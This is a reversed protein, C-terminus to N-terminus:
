PPLHWRSTLRKCLRYALYSIFGQLELMLWRREASRRVAKRALWYWNRTVVPLAVHRTEALLLCKATYAGTGVSYNRMLAPIDEAKRRHHHAVIVDPNYLGWWGAVSARVQADMEEGYFPAGPGLDPDFGGIEELIRRRFMMNAGQLAGAPIFSYPEIQERQDSTKITVPADTPDFLDIRGGAFGIKPDAFTERVRDIYDQAVYCDDDTIAIIDGRAAKWGVNHARGLGPKSEFLVRMPMPAKPAYERLLEATRDTSGNDVVVLEWTCSPNQRAVYDLCSQLQEARNRTALVLSVAPRDM